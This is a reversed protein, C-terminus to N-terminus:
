VSDCPDVDDDDASDEVDTLPALTWVLLRDDPYREPEGFVGTLVAETMERKASPYLKEHLM